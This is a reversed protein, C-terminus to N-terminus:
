LASLLFNKITFIKIYVNIYQKENKESSTKFLFFIRETLEVLRVICKPAAIIAQVKGIYKDKGCTNIKDKM